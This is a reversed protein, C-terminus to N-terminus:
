SRSSVADPGPTRHAATEESGTRSELWTRLDSWSGFPAEGPGRTLHWTSWGFTRAPRIDNDARDGVMLSQAPPIGLSELRLTLRQFVHPDPKSFGNRFSWFCLDPHFIGLDLGHGALAEGLERLTYAQANSAIGLPVGRQHLLALTTATEPEMGVTRGLQIQRDIFTELRGNASDKLDPILETVVSPWHIEPWPIGRARAEAHRRAIVQSCAAAFATRTWPAERHVQERYLAQWRAEADAPAPGVTLMTSYVDLIVARIRLFPLEM